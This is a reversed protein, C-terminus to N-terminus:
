RSGKPTDVFHPHNQPIQAMAPSFPSKHESTKKKSSDLAEKAKDLKELLKKVNPRM